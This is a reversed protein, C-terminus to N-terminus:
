PQAPQPTPSQPQPAASGGFLELLRGALEDRSEMAVAQALQARAEKQHGLFGYHYGLLFRAFAVDPNDNVFKELARVHKVYDGNGYYRRFNKVVHGWEKRDLLSMGRQAAAAAGRHDDNALLTQSVFLFLIGNGPMEIVAHNAFRAAQDYRGARFEAEARRQFELGERTTGAASRVSDPAASPPSPAAVSDPVVYYSTRPVDNVTVYRNPRISYGYWYPDHGIGFHLGFRFPEHHHGHNGHHGGHNGARGSYGGARGTYSGVRGTHIGAGRSYGGARSTSSGSRGSYGGARGTHIGAGRSYGGARSTSSGSRGTYSGARGGSNGARGSYGGARGTYNQARGGSSRAGGGYGGARGTYSGARGGSGGSRGGSGGRGSPGSKHQAWVPAYATTVALLVAFSSVVRMARQRFM